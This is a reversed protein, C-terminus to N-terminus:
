DPTTAKISTASIGNPDDYIVQQGLATLTDGNETLHNDEAGGTWSWWLWGIGHDQAKAMATVYDMSAEESNNYPETYKLLGMQIPFDQQAVYDIAQYLSMGYEGQYTWGGAVAPNGELVDNEGFGGATIFWYAQWGMITKHLPDAAQVAAGQALLNPLDRGAMISMVTFPCDYGWGRLLQIREITEERWEDQTNVYSEQVADVIIWKKYKQYIEKIEDLNWYNIDQYNIIGRDPPPTYISWFIVLGHGTARAFLDDVDQFSMDEHNVIIRAANAGTAAIRDVWEAQDVAWWLPQEIGRIVLPQGSTDLLQRGQVQLTDNESVAVCTEFAYEGSWEGWTGDNCTRTQIESVCDSDESVFTAEYRTRSEQEGSTTGDCSALEGQNATDDQSSGNTNENCATFSLLTLVFFLWGCFWLLGLCNRKKLEM